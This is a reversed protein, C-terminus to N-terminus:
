FLFENRLVNEYSEVVYDEFKECTDLIYECSDLFAYRDGGTYFSKINMGSRFSYRTFSTREISKSNLKYIERSMYKKFNQSTQIFQDFFTKLESEDIGELASKYSVIRNNNVDILRNLIEIAKAKDM